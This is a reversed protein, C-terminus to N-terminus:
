RSAVQVTALMLLDGGNVPLRTLDPWPYLGVWLTYAGPPLDAPLPLAHRDEIVAGAAWSDTPRAGGAPAGDVQAVLRGAGDLLQNTVTYRAGVADLAEWRLVIRLADGPRPDAPSLAYGTLRIADGFQASVPQWDPADAGMLYLSVTGGLFSFFQQRFGHAALWAAARRDRDYGIPDGYEVLWVRPADGVLASLHADASVDEVLLAPDTLRARVEPPRYYDFLAMQLANSLLIVDDPQAAAEVARLAAGYGSRAYDPNTYWQHNAALAGTVLLAVALLALAHGAAGAPLRARLHVVGAAVLVTFLPAGGIVFREHFFPMAPNVAWSMLLTFGVGGGLLM